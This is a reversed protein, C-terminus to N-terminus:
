RRDWVAGAHLEQLRVAKVQVAELRQCAGFEEHHGLGIGWIHSLHQLIHSALSGAVPQHKALALAYSASKAAHDALLKTGGRGQAPM